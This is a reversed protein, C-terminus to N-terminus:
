NKWSNVFGRKRSKVTRKKAQNQNPIKPEKGPAGTQVEQGMLAAAKRMLKLKERELNVKLIGLVFELAGLSYVRCDLQENPGLKVWEYGVMVNKKYKEIKKENAMQEFHRASYRDPFHCYGPGPKAIKLRKFIITKGDDVNMTHLIARNRKKKDGQMSGANCLTGTNVGKTAYINRRRRPGTFKYVENAMHGSDIFAARVGLNVGDVRTFRKKLYEDFAVWVEPQDIDGPLVYYGLSWTEGRLGHGVFEMEIRPLSGSQVDAGVTIVLVDSPIFHRSLYDEGRSELSGSDVTEGEEEYTDGLILNTFSKVTTTDGTEADKTAQIHEDAIYSWPKLYSYAAWLRAGIRRPKDIPQGDANFFRDDMDDYYFGDLTQWRGGKDMAPYDRYELRCGNVPCVMHATKYDGDEYKFNEFDLQHLQDCHPCRVFRYFVMDSKDIAKEMQCAGKTKPTSGRISKPFPAQDLRGDGLKLANGENDIDEDFGALEDYSAVDKSMRRFNKASKGGKIDWTAGHFVKKDITNYKSKLGVECKLKAGLVPVDRLMTEVEDITFGKADGDTPQWTAVNRNKQEILCGLAALLCKTYGVRKPKMFNVVEIDDSTMWNLIARQYPYCKWKGETGSSEPSLYFYKDAWDAGLLPVTARFPEVGYKFAKAVNITL